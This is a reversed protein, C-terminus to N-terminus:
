ARTHRQAAAVQVGPRRVRAVLHGRPPFILPPQGQPRSREGGPARSECQAAPGHPAAKTPARRGRGPERAARACVGLTGAAEARAREPRPPRPGDRAARTRPRRRAGLQTRPASPTRPPESPQDMMSRRADGRPRPGDPITALCRGADPVGDSRSGLVTKAGPATPQMISRHRAAEATGSIAAACVAANQAGSM